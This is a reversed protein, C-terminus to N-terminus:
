QAVDGSGHTELHLSVKSLLAQRTVADGEGGQLAPHAPKQTQM